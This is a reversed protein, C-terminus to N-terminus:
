FQIVTAIQKRHAAPITTLLEYKQGDAIVYDGNLLTPSQVGLTILDDYVVLVTPLHLIERVLLGLMIIRDREDGGKAAIMEEPYLYKGNLRAQQKGAEPFQTYVFKQLSALTQTDGLKAKITKALLAGLGTQTYVGTQSNPFTKYLKSLRGDYVLNNTSKEYIHPLKCEAANWHLTIPFVATANSFDYTYLKVGKTKASIKEPLYYSKENVTLAPYDYVKEYFPYLLTLTAEKGEGRRALRIDYGCQNLMFCTFVAQTAGTNDKPYLAKALAGTLECVSIDSLGSNNRFDIIQYLLVKYPADSLRTWFRSVAREDINKGMGMQTIAKDFLFRFKVDYLTITVPEKKIIAEMAKQAAEPTYEAPTENEFTHINEAIVCPIEGTNLAAELTRINTFTPSPTATLTYETWKNDYIAKAFDANNQRMRDSFGGTINAKINTKFWGTAEEQAQKLGEKTKEVAEKATQKIQKQTEKSYDKIDDIADKVADKAADKADMTKREILTPDKEKAVTDKKIAVTDASYEAARCPTFACLSCILMVIVSFYERMREFFGPDKKDPSPKMMEMDKSKMLLDKEEKSLRKPVWVNVNVIMDGRPQYGQLDPLGKGRLRLLKGAPTGSDIKIRAKGDLTPVEVAIGLAADAFSIYLDYHLNRGDRKFLEHPTENIRVILDGAIGGRPAANGKGQMSLEMGGAVGAPIRISVTEEGVQTGSGGCEKCRDTIVEGSGGCAPCISTQQMIGFISQM